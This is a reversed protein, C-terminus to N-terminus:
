YCSYDNASAGSCDRPEGGAEVKVEAPAKTQAVEGSAGDLFSPEFVVISASVLASVMLIGFPM